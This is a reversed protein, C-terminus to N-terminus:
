ASVRESTATRYEVEDRTMAMFTDELSIPQAVLEHLVVANDAAVQGVVESSVGTLELM